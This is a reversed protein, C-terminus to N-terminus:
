EPQIVCEGDYVIVESSSQLDWNYTYCSGCQMGEYGPLNLGRRCVYQDTRTNQSSVYKGGCLGYGTYTYTHTYTHIHTHIDKWLRTCILMWRNCILYGFVRYNIRAISFYLLSVHTGETYNCSQIDSPAREHHITRIKLLVCFHKLLLLL